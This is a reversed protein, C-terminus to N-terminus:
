EAALALVKAEFYGELQGFSSINNQEMWFV